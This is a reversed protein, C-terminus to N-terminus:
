PQWLPKYEYVKVLKGYFMELTIVYEPVAILVGTDEENNVTKIKGINSEDTDDKVDDSKQNNEPESKRRRLESTEIMLETQENLQMEDQDFNWLGLNDDRYTPQVVYDKANFQVRLQGLDNGLLNGIARSIRPDHWNEKAKFFMNRGKQVWADHCTFSPDILARSLRSFLSTATAVGEPEVSM